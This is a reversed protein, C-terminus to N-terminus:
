RHHLMTDNEPVLIARVTSLSIYCCQEVPEVARRHVGKSMWTVWVVGAPRGVGWVREGEREWGVKQAERVTIVDITVRGLGAVEVRFDEDLCIVALSVAESEGEEFATGAEDDALALAFFFRGLDDM